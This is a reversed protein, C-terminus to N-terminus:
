NAESETDIAAQSISIDAQSKLHQVFSDYAADGMVQLTRADDSRADEDNKVNFLAVVAQSGSQM